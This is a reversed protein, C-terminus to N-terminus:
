SSHGPPDPVEPERPLHSAAPSRDARRQLVLGFIWGVPLGVIIGTLVSYCATNAAYGVYHANFGVPGEKGIPDVLLPIGVILTAAFFGIAACKKVPNRMRTGITTM